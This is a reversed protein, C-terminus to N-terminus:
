SVAIMEPPPLRTAGGMDSPITGSQILAFRILNLLVIMLITGHRDSARAACAWVVVFMRSQCNLVLSVLAMGVAGVVILGSPPAGSACMVPLLM